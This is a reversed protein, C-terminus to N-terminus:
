KDGPLSALQLAWPMQIGTWWLISTYEWYEPLWGVWEWDVISSIHGQDAMINHYWLDGHTFVIDHPFLTPMKKAKELMARGEEDQAQAAQLLTAYFSCEDNCANIHWDPVHGSYIDKRDVGCIRTGWPNSYSQMCDLIEALEQMITHLEDPSL